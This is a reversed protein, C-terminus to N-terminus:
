LATGSQALAARIPSSHHENNNIPSNEEPLNSSKNPDVDASPEIELSSSFTLSVSHGLQRQSSPYIYDNEDDEALLEDVREQRQQESMNVVEEGYEDHEDGHQRLESNIHGLRKTMSISTSHAAAANSDIDDSKPGYSSATYDDDDNSDPNDETSGSPLSESYSESQSPINDTPAHM